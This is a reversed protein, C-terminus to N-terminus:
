PNGGAAAAPSSRTSDLLHRFAAIIAPQPRRIAPVRQYNQWGGGLSKYLQAFAEGQAVQAQAYQGQLDYLQREADIVNLYDTLGRDYRATALDLARQAALLADSLSALRAQQAQYADIAADVEEVADLITQRYVLLQAQARLSAIDVQADLAGFDLLPWLAGAGFAWIHKNVVPTTGWNQGQGGIAGSVVVQPYLDATAVGIGATAAALEREAAQIDPRRELLALPTGPAVPPPMSPVLGPQALERSLREPYEGVLTALTYEAANVQAALPPIQAELTALERRALAVDLENTIGRAYRISELRLSERLADSARHLVSLRVQFGRLDIYSRVVDAVVSVLVDYRAARAAQAEARAAEFERRFKGFIDLEWVTDFGALTNIHQLGSADDAARLAQPALGKTMDSGTGRGAAAAADIEPLAYGLVVAEYTRAQQLRNLALAVDLNSQVARDVLADLQADGLARWWAAMEPPAPRPPAGPAGPAAPTSAGTAAFARPVDPKPTRYNPGVACASLAILAAVALARAGTM